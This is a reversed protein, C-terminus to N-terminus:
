LRRSNWLSLDSFVAMLIPSLINNSRGYLFVVALSKSKMETTVFNVEMGSTSTDLSLSAPNSVSESSQQIADASSCM